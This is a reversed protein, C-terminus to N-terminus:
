EEPFLRAKQGYEELDALTLGLAQMAELYAERFALFHEHFSDSTFASTKVTYKPGVERKVFGIESIDRESAVVGHVLANRRAKNIVNTIKPGTETDGAEDLLSLLIAPKNGFSLSGLVISATLPEMKALQAIKVELALEFESWVSLLSGYDHLFQTRRDIAQEPMPDSLVYKVM